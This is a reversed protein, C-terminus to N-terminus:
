RKGPSKKGRIRGSRKGLRRPRPQCRPCCHSSRGGVVIREIPTGCARCPEGTRGYVQLYDQHRGQGGYADRFDRRTTGMNTIAAELVRPIAEHLRRVEGATLRAAPRLPHIKARFLAEDAYINGMGAVVRQDLLVSKVPASRRRLLDRLREYTLDGDLPEPGVGGLADAPDGTLFMMGFKRVDRFRLEHGNDLRFRARVYAEDPDGSRRYLLAGTMRLHVIWWGGDDLPLLLYKGRRQVDQIRRGRLGQEFQRPSVRMVIRESGPEIHAEEIRRGSLLPALGRRITEVEPLEPM